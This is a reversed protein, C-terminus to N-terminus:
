GQSHSQHKVYVKLQGTIADGLMDLAITGDAPVIEHSIVQSGIFTEIKIFGCPMKCSAHSVMGGSHQAVTYTGNKEGLYRMMMLPSQARGSDADNKSVEQQYGYEGGDEMVYNHAPEPLASQQINSSAEGESNASPLAPAPQNIQGAPTCGASLLAAIVILYRM